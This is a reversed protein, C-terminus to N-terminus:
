LNTPETNDFHKGVQMDPHAGLYIPSCNRSMEEEERFGTVPPVCPSLKIEARKKGRGVEVTGREVCPAGSERYIEKARTHMALCPVRVEMERPLSYAAAHAPKLPARERHVLEGADRRRPALDSHRDLHTELGQRSRM